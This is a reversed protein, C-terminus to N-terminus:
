ALVGPLQFLALILTVLWAGGLVDAVPESTLARRARMTARSTPTSRLIVRYPATRDTHPM